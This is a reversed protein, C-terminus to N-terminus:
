EDFAVLVVRGEEVLSRLEQVVKGVRQDEGVHLEIVGVDVGIEFRHLGCELPEHVQNRAAAEDHGVVAAGIHGFAHRAGEAAHLAVAEGGIGVPAELIQAM